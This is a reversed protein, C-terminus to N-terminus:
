LNGLLIKFNLPKVIFNRKATGYFAKKCFMVIVELIYHPRQPMWSTVPIIQGKLFKEQNSPILVIMIVANAWVTFFEDAIVSVQTQDKPRSSGRSFSITVWELIVAQLIRHVSSGPQRCNMPNCDTVVSHTVINVSQLKSRQQHAQQLM